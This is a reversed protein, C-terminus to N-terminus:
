ELYAHKEQMNWILAGGVLMYHLMSSAAGLYWGLGINLLCVVVLLLYAWQKRRFLFLASVIQVSNLLGAFLFGTLQITYTDHQTGSLLDRTLIAIQVVYFGGILILWLLLFTVAGGLEIQQKNGTSSTQTMTEDGM